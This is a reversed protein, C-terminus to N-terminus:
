VPLVDNGTQEASDVPIIDRRHALTLSDILRRDEHALREFGAHRFTLQRSGAQGAQTAAQLFRACDAVASPLSGHAVQNQCQQARAAERDCDRCRRSGDAGAIGEANLAVVLRAQAVAGERAVLLTLGGGRSPPQPTDLVGIVVGAVLARRAVGADLRDIWPISRRGIWEVRSRSNVSAPARQRTPSTPYRRRQLPPRWAVSLKRAIPSRQKRPLSHLVPRQRPFAM